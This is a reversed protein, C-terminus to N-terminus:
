LEGELVKKVMEDVKSGRLRAEKIFAEIKEEVFVKDKERSIFDQLERGLAQLETETKEPMKSLLFAGLLYKLRNEEKRIKHVVGVEIQKIQQKIKEQKAKLALLKDVKAGM